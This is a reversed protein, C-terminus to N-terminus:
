VILRRLNRAAEGYDPEAEPTTPVKPCAADHRFYRVGYADVFVLAPSGKALMQACAHCPRARRMTTAKM